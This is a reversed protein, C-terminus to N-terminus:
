FEKRAYQRSARAHGTSAVEQLKQEFAEVVVSWDYRRMEQVGNAALRTRLLEDASIMQIGRAIGHSDDPETLWGTNGHSILDPVGGVRTAIVPVGLAMAEM